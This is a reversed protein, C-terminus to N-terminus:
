PRGSGSKAANRISFFLTCHPMQRVMHEPLIVDLCIPSSPKSKSLPSYPSTGIPTVYWNCEEQGEAVNYHVSVRGQPGMKKGTETEPAKSVGTDNRSAAVGTFTRSRLEAVQRTILAAM